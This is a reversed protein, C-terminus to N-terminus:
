EKLSINNMRHELLLRVDRLNNPHQYIYELPSMDKFVLQKTNLWKVQDETKVFYSTLCDYLEILEYIQINDPTITTLPNHLIKSIETQNFGLENMIGNVIKFLGKSLDNHNLSKM